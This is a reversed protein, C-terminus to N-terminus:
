GNIYHNSYDHGKQHVECHHLVDLAKSQLDVFENLTNM